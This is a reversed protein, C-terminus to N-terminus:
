VLEGSACGPKKSRDLRHILLKHRTSRTEKANKPRPHLPNLRLHPLRHLLPIQLVHLITRRLHLIPIPNPQHPLHHPLHHRPNIPHLISLHIPDLHPLHNILIHYFPTTTTCPCRAMPTICHPHQLPEPAMPLIHRLAKRQAHLLLNNWERSRRRHTHSEKTSSRRSPTQAKGNTRDPSSGSNAIITLRPFVSELFSIRSRFSSAPFRTHKPRTSHKTILRLSTSYYWPKSLAYPRCKWEVM